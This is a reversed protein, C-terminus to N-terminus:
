ENQLEGETPVPYPRLPNFLLRDDEDVGYPLVGYDQMRAVSNIVEYGISFMSMEAVHPIHQSHTTGDQSTSIAQFGHESYKIFSQNTLESDFHSGGVQDRLVRCFEERTMGTRTNDPDSQSFILERSWWFEFPVSFAPLRGEIVLNCKPEYHCSFGNEDNKMRLTVLHPSALLNNSHHPDGVSMFMLEDSQKEIQDLVSVTRRGNSHLLSVVSTAIRLAEFLHGENIGEMSRMIALCENNLANVKEANRRPRPDYPDTM